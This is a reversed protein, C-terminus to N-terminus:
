PLILDAKIDDDAIRFEYLPKRLAQMTQDPFWAMGGGYPIGIAAQRPSNNQLANRLHRWEHTEDHVDLMIPVLNLTDIFNMADDVACSGLQVAGASIGILMAGNKYCATILEHLGTKQMHNWGDIVEGGAILIIDAISLTAKDEDTLNMSIMRCNTIELGAMACIFMEYYVPSNNNNVGIYAASLSSRSSGSLLSTLTLPSKDRLFLLQSDAFLFIPQLEKM